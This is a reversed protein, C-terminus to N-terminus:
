SASCGVRVAFLRADTLAIRLTVDTGGLSSLSAGSSWTPEAYLASGRIPVSENLTMGAVAVGNQQVEVLAYRTVHAYSLYLYTLSTSTL